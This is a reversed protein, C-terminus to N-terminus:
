SKTQKKTVAYTDRARGPGLTCYDMRRMWVDTMKWVVAGRHEMDRSDRIRRM